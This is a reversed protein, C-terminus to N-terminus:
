NASWAYLISSQCIDFANDVATHVIYYPPRVDSFIVFLAVQSFSTRIYKSVYEHQKGYCSTGQINPRPMFFDLYRQHKWVALETHQYRIRIFKKM